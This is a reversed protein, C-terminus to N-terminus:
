REIVCQLCNNIWDREMTESGYWSGNQNLNFVKKEYINRKLNKINKTQGWQPHYTLLYNSATLWGLFTLNESAQFLKEAIAELSDWRMLTATWGVSSSFKNIEGRSVLLTLSSKWLFFCIKRGVRASVSFIKEPHPARSWKWGEAPTVCLSKNERRDMRRM